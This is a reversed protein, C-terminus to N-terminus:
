RVGHPISIRQISCYSHARVHSMDADGSWMVVILIFFIIDLFSLAPVNGVQITDNTWFPISSSANVPLVTTLVLVEGSPNDPM